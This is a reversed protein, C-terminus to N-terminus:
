SQRRVVVRALMGGGTAMPPQNLALDACCDEAPLQTGEITVHLDNEAHVGPLNESIRVGTGPKLAELEAQVQTLKKGKACGRLRNM